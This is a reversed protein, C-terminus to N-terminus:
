GQDHRARRLRGQPVSMVLYWTTLPKRTDRSMSGGDCGGCHVEAADKRHTCRVHFHARAFVCVEDQASIQLVLQDRNVLNRRLVAERAQQEKVNAAEFERAVQQAERKNAQVLGVYADM